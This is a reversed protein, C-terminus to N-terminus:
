LTRWSLVRISGRGGVPGTLRGAAGFQTARGKLDVSVILGPSAVLRGVTAAATARSSSETGERDVSVLRGDTPQGGARGPPLYRSATAAMANGYADLLPPAWVKEGEQLPYRWLLNGGAPSVQVAYLAYPFHDSAEAVGGTGFVAVDAHVSVGAGIPEDAGGPVTFAPADGYAHGDELDLAWLRGVMDGFVLSDQHGDRDRDMLAPVAPTAEAVPGSATYTTTFQWLLQGTALSVALAHLGAAGAQPAFDTTLYLCDATDGPCRALNVGRTRGVGTGPLLTEWLLSPQYPDTIDLVFLCSRLNNQITGTAVLLTHWARRVDGDLTVFQESVVPSGDLHVAVQGPANDLPQEVLHPLFSGPLYAWLEAGGDPDDVPYRGNEGDRRSVFFAHLMGDEAGAYLVRPRQRAGQDVPSGGVLVPSSRSIGWLRKPDEANGATLEPTGGRRGRVAHVLIEAAADSTSGLAPGLRQAQNAEFPLLMGDLNTFIVRFPNDPRISEPQTGAVGAPPVQEAADWLGRPFTDLLDVARLHGRHGVTEASATYLVGDAYVPTTTVEELQLDAALGQGHSALWLYLCLLPGRFHHRHM